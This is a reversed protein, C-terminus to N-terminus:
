AHIDLLSFAMQMWEIYVPVSHGVTQQQWHRLSASHTHTAAALHGTDRGEGVGTRICQSILAVSEVTPFSIYPICDLVGSGCVCM